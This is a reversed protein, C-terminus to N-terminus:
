NHVSYLCSGVFLTQWRRTPSGRHGREDEDKVADLSIVATRGGESRNRFFLMIPVRSVSRMLYDMFRMRGDWV